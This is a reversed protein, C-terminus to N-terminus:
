SPTEKLVGAVVVDVDEKPLGLTDNGLTDNGLKDNGLKEEM